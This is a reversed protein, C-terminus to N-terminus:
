PEQTLALIEDFCFNRVLEALGEAIASYSQPIQEILELIQEGDVTLAAQNLAAVWEAPMVALDCSHLEEEKNKRVEQQKEEYIYRVGLHEAMKEFLVQERFPKRVFDDCGAALVTAQQEEFASATLAVIACRSGENEQARIRRTAEYGDMVPMRMDMWILHPHWNQWQAIAEQGNTATRTEFGVAQLLQTLLEWNERRDDVVLVRYVPQNSALKLIRGRTFPLAVEPPPEALTVQVEFRFTSGQGVVSTFDIDGGMLRVFQRSITLGLGTGERAEIGSTTQVFPQFLNNMEEPAIGKGTDEVEFHITRQGNDTAGQKKESVVSVRLTVKGVQTFKVANSLLNILVQRLKGEDTLVYQPLDPAVEFQLSLHKAETRVQFIEQLTQLLRHLNFPATNLVIRGAEIKSMELVDNILNLLHEGSRNIISLSERQKNTLATDREMLQAFGLIANLPTRLEHSMNALFTSKARNAAEAAEKAIKLAAEAKHRARGIAILEGVLKLLNIDDQSWRKFFRVVDVGMFGVVKGSHITPVAVLSQASQNKFTEREVEAEPPLEALRSVQIVQSSLIQNNFWPFTATSTGRSPNPLPEIGAACWEHTIYFQSQDDSYEFICSREVGILHAIAELTFNIATDVDQDIFQRSISSLLSDVQARRQLAEEAQKRELEAGARAAFIRLILERGPDDEMPKVDIVALLGLIQGLSNTLPVGLYSDAGIAVFDPDDPFLSQIGEPYYCMKGTLVKGCPTGQVMYEFNEAIAGGQWVALTCAKTKAQNAFKSVWAYRVGLVEALYRVCSQFFEDGTKAATGEVILRLAQERNKRVEELHKAVSIDAIVFDIYDEEANLLLSLLGWAISGDRRRLQVEFNRIEGQQQLEAVMRQRENPNVHFDTACHKGILDAPSSYGVIEVFRQNVDLFLGDERRTRGIGVQSNEFINRYKLESRRLAEEAQKRKIGLAMESAAFELAQLTSESLESKAFIAFMGLLQKELMLPYGAFAVLGERKAWDKDLIHPDELVTNTLYPHSEPDIPFQSVPIRSYSGNLRTYMGASAQLEFVDGEANITWIRSFAANLHKVVAEACRKLIAPLSDSQALASGVDARFAALNAREALAAEVQKRETLDQVVGQVFKRDGLQVATIWVEAPFDTGDARRHVWEFSYSGREFATAIYQEALSYSDQGNPQFPPSLERVHKGALEPRSYGFLREAASNGDFPNGEEALLVAISTSEYLARFRAESQRLAEEAQKRETIDRSVGLISVSGDPSKVISSSSSLWRWSGDKHRFRVEIGSQKDGAGTKQLVALDLALDDPHVFSTLSHGEVEALSYGLISTVNPSHYTFIGDLTLVFILDNANEVISRFKLESEQLASEILKRDTIDTAIGTVMWCNEADDRVSTITASIWRINGDPHRYRYEYKFPRECFIGELLQQNFAALDEPIIRSDLLYKDAMLEFDSYGWIWVSGPSYYEIEWEGNAYFRFRSISAIASNLITNLRAESAKLAEEAQKRETIDDAIGIAIPKGNADQSPALNDSHWYWKGDEHRVRWELGSQKEGTTLVKAIADMCIPLDDPHIFSIFSKGEMDAADIGMITSVNPSIYSIVGSENLIYIIENANEVITRFKYESQRLAEEARRRASIDRFSWVRGIIKEGLRQPRSYREFARGDQLELIDYSDAEPNAYLKKVQQTFNEPDKLQKALYAIRKAHEPEALVEPTVSWMDLFSQNYSVINGGRDIALIGDQISEFTTQLLSLSNELDAQAQKRETADTGVSLIEVLNGQEDLIPKNAWVIWVRDGNNCINENENFLYNEPHQCIDVMLTQLDRGSTETEPVITGVVNRGIIESANFGLFRQGYENLFRVNGETDWRLIICNATQVLDRYQAESERLAEETRKIDSIDRGLLVLGKRRGDPHFLPVKIIDWISVTGDPLPIVEEVRHMSGKLWAEEDTKCCTSVASGYFSSLQALEADTKGKYDVGQLKLFELNAQNSELWRGGGDKFSIVDPTADILTRLLEERERLSVETRQRELIDAKVQTLDHIVLVAAGNGEPMPLYSGSIKLVLTREGNACRGTPFASIRGDRLTRAPFDGQTFEYETVEYEGNRMRVDPYSEPTLPQGAQTLPLLDILKSGLVNSHPQSVLNEFAPNCWQVRNDEGSFVVADAIAELAAEMKSLTAQQQNVLAALSNCM